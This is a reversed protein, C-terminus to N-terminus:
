SEHGLRHALEARSRVGLKRYTRTLAREVTHETVFLAAAVERNTRGEAVLAAIRREAETLEGRSPARGGIRQLEAQTREAWLPAGLQEFIALAQELTARAAGRRKARRQTAGFALLTRAHQFPDQSRAHEALSREFGAQAGALDGRAALILARCRATIAIACCRDLAQAREEVSLLRTEARELEGVAILAELTDALEWQFGPELQRLGERIEWAPELYTLAKAPEGRSLEIFGLVWRHGSLAVRVGHVEALALARESRARAEDVQGRHAAILAAPWESVPQNGELGFQARLELVDAAHRAALEWNGARWELLSLLWLADEEEPDDAALLAERWDALPRRARELEGSWILQLGSAWTAPATRPWHPLSRELMLAEEMRAFPIGRGERFHIFGFTALADCRLAADGARSAAQVALEAHELGRNGDETTAVVGALNLHIAAVLADDGAAEALAERYLDVADHSGVVVDVTRALRLCAEARAVGRPATKCVDELLAIARRGDGAERHRDACDLVRRRMDDPDNRPTLRVALELLEAAAAAAGRAQVGEAAEEVVAAVERNPRATALALHRAREEGEPLLAALRAHLARRQSPTSRAVVASRLLPHAFRLRQDDVELITAELTDALGTEARRGAAAEVLGLTPDVLLAVVRAVEIGAPRLRDLREQVLEALNATVPLEAGPALRGGDGRRQLASVLELAFFPNGGSTEWVRLLTPRALVDGGRTRLLERLAGVSLPGLEITQLREDAVDRRLWLPVEDRATLIVSVADGALRSLAFRLMALSPADLWQVDDVVLLVRKGVALRRLVNLFAFAVVGEEAVAGDSESLALAAELARRQPRPLQPLVESIVGGILDALGVFSFRAEAESPRTSLVLYGRAEALEAVQLSLTTKGIGAEGVVVAAAFSGEPAGLLGLLAALEDDRGVLHGVGVATGM